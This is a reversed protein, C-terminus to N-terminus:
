ISFKYKEYNDLFYSKLLRVVAKIGTSEMFSDWKGCSYISFRKSNKDYLINMNEFDNKRLTVDDIVNYIDELQLFYGNSFQNNDLKDNRNAFKNELYDEHDTLRKDSYGLYKSLKDTDSLNSLLNNMM